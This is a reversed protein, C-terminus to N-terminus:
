LTRVIRKFEEGRHEFDRFMDFSACAPSLLVNWGQEAHNKATQIAREFDHGVYEYEDFGAQSLAQGIKEGTDGLLVAYKVPSNKIVRCMQSYDSNKESGGLLLVTPRTMAEVAKITSDPNTGKSDNIYRIGELEAVTEIRHEVGAFRRLVERVNEAPVGGAMAASVAALVNELNHAGPLLIQQTSIVQEEGGAHAFVVNGDKIYSGEKVSEKRSFFLVRCKARGAMAKTVPDDYNLVLVDGARQNMFVREKIRAYNEMTKHRNLHDETLNLILSIDPKFSSVTELQFSSLECVTVSDKDTELAHAAYPEGINGVVFTKKGWSRFIEGLLTTTTTKGNTGTVGVLLGQSFRYALEIESIVEAGMARAKEAAPHDAPIGPSIVLTDVGQLLDEVNEGLRNEFPLGRLPELGEGLQQATKLDNIIVHKGKKALLCAAAVGSKAMGWVLVREM